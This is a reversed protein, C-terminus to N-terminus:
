GVASAIPVTAAVTVARIVRPRAIRWDHNAALWWSLPLAL